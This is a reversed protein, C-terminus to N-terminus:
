IRNALANRGLWLLGWPVASSIFGWGGEELMAVVVVVM